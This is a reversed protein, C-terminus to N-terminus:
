RAVYPAAPVNVGIPWTKPAGTARDVNDYKARGPGWVITIDDMDGGANASDAKACGFNATVNRVKFAKCTTGLDFGPGLSVVDSQASSEYNAYPVFAPYSAGNVSYPRSGELVQPATLCDRKSATTGLPAEAVQKGNAFIHLKGEGQQRAFSSPLPKRLGAALVLAQGHKQVDEAFTPSSTSALNVVPLDWTFALHTWKGKELGAGAVPVSATFDSGEYKMAFSLKGNEIFAQPMLDNTSGSCTGYSFLGHLENDSPTFQPRFYLEVGGRLDEQEFTQLSIEKAGAGAFTVARSTQKDPHRVGDTTRVQQTRPIDLVEHSRNAQHALYGTAATCTGDDKCDDFDIMGANDFIAGFEPIDKVQRAELFADLTRVFAPNIFLPLSYDHSYHNYDKFFLDGFGREFTDDSNGTPDMRRNFVNAKGNFRSDKIRILGGNRNQDIDSANRSSNGAADFRNEAVMAESWGSLGLSLAWKVKKLHAVTCKNGATDCQGSRTWAFGSGDGSFDQILLQSAAHAGMSYGLVNINGILSSGGGDDAVLLQDILLAAQQMSHSLATNYGVQNADTAALIQQLTENAQPAIANVTENMRRVEPSSPSSRLKEANTQCFQDHSSACSWNISFILAKPDRKNIWRMIAGEDVLSNNQTDGGFGTFYIYVNPKASELHTKINAECDGFRSAINQRAETPERRAAVIQADYAGTQDYPDYTPWSTFNAITPTDNAGPEVGDAKMADVLVSNPFTAAHTCVPRVDSVAAGSSEDEETTTSCAVSAAAGLALLSVSWAGFRM